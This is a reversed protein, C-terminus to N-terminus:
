KTINRKQLMDKEQLKQSYFNHFDIALAASIRYLVDSDISAKKLMRPLHCRHRGIKDALWAVSRQQRELEQRVIKGMDIVAEINAMDKQKFIV